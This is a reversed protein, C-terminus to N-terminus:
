LAQQRQAARHDEAPRLPTFFVIMKRLWKRERTERDFRVCLGHTDTDRIERSVKVEVHLHAAVFLSGYRYLARGPPPPLQLTPFRKSSIFLLVLASPM